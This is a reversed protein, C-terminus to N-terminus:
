ANGGQTIIEAQWVEPHEPDPRTVTISEIIKPGIFSGDELRLLIQKGVLENM